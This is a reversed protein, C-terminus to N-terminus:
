DSMRKFFLQQKDNLGFLREGACASVLEWGQEAMQRLYEHLLPAREWHAAEVGDVYRLRCGHYHQFSAVRYEWRGKAARPAKTTAPAAAKKARPPTKTAARVPQPAESPAGSLIEALIDPTQKREAM